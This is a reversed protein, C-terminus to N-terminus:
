DDNKVPFVKTWYLNMKRQDLYNDTETQGNIQKDTQRETKSETKRNKADTKRNV